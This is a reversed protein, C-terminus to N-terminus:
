IIKTLEKEAIVRGLSYGFLYFAIRIMRWEIDSVEDDYYYCESLDWLFLTVILTVMGLCFPAFLIGMIVSFLCWVVEIWIPTKIKDERVYPTVTDINKECQTKYIERIYEDNFMKYQYPLSLISSVNFMKSSSQSLSSTISSPYSINSIKSPSSSTVSSQLSQSSIDFLSPSADCNSQM